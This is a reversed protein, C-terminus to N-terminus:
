GRENLIGIGVPDAIDGPDDVPQGIQQRETDTRDPQRRDKGGRHSIEAVVDGIVGPDIRQEAADLIEVREDAGHMRVTEFEDEIEDRVM